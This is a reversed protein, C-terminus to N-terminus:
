SCESLRRILKTSMAVGDALRDAFFSRGQEFQAAYGASDNHLIITCWERVAATFEFDDARISKDFCATHISDRLMQENSFLYEAIGLRLRFIPTECVALHQFPKIGLKHWGDVMALISLHSNKKSMDVGLAEASTAKEPRRICFDAMISDPILHQQGSGSIPDPATEKVNWARDEFVAERADLLRKSLADHDETIMLRFLDAVSRNYQEVQQKARPNLLALGSYIHPKASYIRLCALVKVNDIGGTYSSNEWPFCGMSKWATGMAMFGLHTLVQTNATITDHEESTMTVIKYKFVSKFLEEVEAKVADTSRHPVLVMTQGCPDVSPGHLSHCPLVSVDAPLYKDFADAEVQKVSCQGIAIAHMKTAPGVREVVRGINLAEVSYVSIDAERVVQVADAYVAVNANGAYKERLKEVNHPLDCGIVKYGRASFRDAYLCGMDGLGVLGIVPSPPVHRLLEAM